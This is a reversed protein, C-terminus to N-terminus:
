PSNKGRWGVSGQTFAKRIAEMRKRNVGLDSHGARSASRFHILKKDADILFEVDDVFLFVLTTFEAHLYTDNETMVRARPLTALLEKLRERAEAATTTFAIPEVAHGPDRDETCVCNPSAPCPTLRGDILGLGRAGPSFVSLLTLLAVGALVIAGAALGLTTWTM